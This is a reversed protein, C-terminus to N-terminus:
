NVTVRQAVTGEESSLQLLYVGAPLGKAAPCWQATHTGAVEEGAYPVDVLRGLADFVRLTVAGSSRMDYELRLVDTAAAPNPYVGVVRLPAPGEQVSNVIAPFNTRSLRVIESNLIQKKGALADDGDYAVYAIISVNKLNWATDPKMAFPVEYVTGASPVAPLKGSWGWAGGLAARLVHNHYYDTGPDAGTQELSGVAAISDEVVLINVRLPVGAAPPTTFRVHIEGVYEDTFMSYAKKSFSVSAIASSIRATTLTPWDETFRIVDPFSGHKHRDASGSPVATVNFASNLVNGESIALDDGAHVAVPIFASKHLASLTELEEAGDPCAVCWAGTYEEFLVKKTQAAAGTCLMLAASILFPTKM